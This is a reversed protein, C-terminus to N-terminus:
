CCYFYNSYKITYEQVLNPISTLNPKKHVIEMEELKKAEKKIAFTIPVVKVEEKIEFTIPIEIKVERANLNVEVEKIM